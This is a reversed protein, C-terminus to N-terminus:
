AIGKSVANKNMLALYIEATTGGTGTCSVYVFGNPLSYFTLGSAPVIELGDQPLVEYDADTLLERVYGDYYYVATVYTEGDITESLFLADEGGIKGVYVDGSADDFHRIKMTLYNICTTESYHQEGANRIQRYVKAGTVLIILMSATFACFLILAFFADVTHIYRKM